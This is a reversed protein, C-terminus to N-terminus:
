RSRSTKILKELTSNLTKITATQNDIISKLDHVQDFVGRRVNKPSANFASIVVEVEWVERLEIVPVEFPDYFSNDSNLILLEQSKLKNDVRKVYVSDMTIIIYVFGDRIKTHWNNVDISSCVVKDGAFLTPEMSDGNIDFCRHLGMKYDYGPLNFHPMESELIASHVQGGYGAQAAVPVYGINGKSYEPEIVQEDNLFMPGQGTYIYQANLHYHEVVKSIWDITVNRKEKIIDHLSQAHFDLSLAFSRFSHITGTEKLHKICKIFRSTVVHTM